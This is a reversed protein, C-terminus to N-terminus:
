VITTYTALRRRLILCAKLQPIRSANGAIAAKKFIENVQEQSYTAYKAQAAKVRQILAELEETNTVM